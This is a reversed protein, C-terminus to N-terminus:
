HNYKTEFKKYMLLNDRSLEDEEEDEDKDEDYLEQEEENKLYENYNSKYNPNLLSNFKVNVKLKPQYYYICFVINHNVGKFDYPNNDSTQFKLTMKSLKGIPHFERLQSLASSSSVPENYGLTNVRFKGIGLSYKSYSLSRYLHEEIEPCRVVVYKEGIFYVSGPSKIFHNQNINDYVSHFLQNFIKNDYNVYSSIYNYSNNNNNKIFCDFGLTESISSAGMNLIFPMSSSFYILNSLDPPNSVYNIEINYNNDNAYNNFFPVFNNITYDGIPFEIKTFLNIDYNSPNFGNIIIPDDLSRAFYIYLVNNYLDISYMTRPVSFDIIELAIVNKFPETFTIVYNNPDPYISKDRDKSDVLFNYSEKISNEKLYDIDEISM